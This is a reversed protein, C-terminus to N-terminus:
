SEIGRWRPLKRCFSIIQAMVQNYTETQLEEFDDCLGEIIISFLAQAAIRNIGADHSITTMECLLNIYDEEYHCNKLYADMFSHAIQRTLRRMEAPEVAQARLNLWKERYFSSRM